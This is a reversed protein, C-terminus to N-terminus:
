KRSHWYAQALAVQQQILASSEQNNKPSSVNLYSPILGNDIEKELDHKELNGSDIQEVLM